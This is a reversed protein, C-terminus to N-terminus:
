GRRDSLGTQPFYTVKEASRKRTVSKSALSEAFFRAFIPSKQSGPNLPLRNLGLATLPGLRNRDQFARPRVVIHAQGTFVRVASAVEAVVEMKFTLAIGLGAREDLAPCEGVVGLRARSRRRRLRSRRSKDVRHLIPVRHRPGM